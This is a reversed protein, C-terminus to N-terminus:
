RPHVKAGHAQAAGYVYILRGGEEGTKFALGALVISAVMTAVMAGKRLAPSPSLGWLSLLLTVCATWVLAEAWDEHKDIASKPVIRRVERADSQGTSMAALGTGVLLLALLPVILWPRTGHRGRWAMVGAGMAFLPLLMSLVIPFHVLAPHLPLQGM